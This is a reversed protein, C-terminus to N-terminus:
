PLSPAVSQTGHVSGAVPRTATMINTSASAGRLHSMSITRSGSERVCRYQIAHGRLTLFLQFIGPLFYRDRTSHESHGLCIIGHLGVTLRLALIGDGHILCV